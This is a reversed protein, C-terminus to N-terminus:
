GKLDRSANYALYAVIASALLGFIDALMFPGGGFPFEAVLDLLFLLFMLAAVGLAGYCMYKEM